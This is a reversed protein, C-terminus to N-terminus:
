EMETTVAKHYRTQIMDMSDTANLKDIEIKYCEPCLSHSFDVDWHEKFYTEVRSWSEKEDRVKRCVSCIPILRRLEAIESIDEIVLLALRKEKYIFPSTTILAYIEKKNEDQFVELTMRRRVVRSGHFAETVSNRIVCDGCFPGRGCGMLVDSAHICHLVDGGRKKIIAPRNVTLFEGAAANFNVIRVDNDVVFVMAPIADLVSRLMDKDLNDNEIM